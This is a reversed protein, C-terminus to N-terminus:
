RGGRAARDSPLKVLGARYDFTMGPRTLLPHGIAGALATLGASEDYSVCARIPWPRGGVELDPLAFYGQNLWAPIGNIRCDRTARSLKIGARGFRNPMLGEFAAGTDLVVIGKEAGYSAAVLPVVDYTDIEIGRRAKANADSPAIIIHGPEFTLAGLAFLSAGILGDYGFTQHGILVPEHGLDIPGLRLSAVLAERAPAGGGVSSIFGHRLLPLRLRKATAESVITSNAGSDVLFRFPQGNLELMIATQNAARPPVTPVTTTAGVVRDAIPPTSPLDGRRVTRFEFQENADRWSVPVWSQGYRVYRMGTVMLGYPDRWAKITEPLHSRANLLLSVRVGNVNFTLQHRVVIRRHRVCDAEVSQENNLDGVLARMAQRRVSSRWSQARGQFGNEVTHTSSAESDAWVETGGASTRRVVVSEAGLWAEVRQGPTSSTLHIDRLPAEGIATMYERRIEAVPPCPPRAHDVFLM